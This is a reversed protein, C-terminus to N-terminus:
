GFGLLFSNAPFNTFHSLNKATNRFCILNLTLNTSTWLILSTKQAFSYQLILSSKQQQKKKAKLSEALFDFFQLFSQYHGSFTHVFIYFNYAPFQLLIKKFFFLFELYSIKFWKYKKEDALRPPQCKWEAVGGGGVGGGGYFLKRRGQYIGFLNGCSKLSPIKFSNSFKSSFRPSKQFEIDTYGVM